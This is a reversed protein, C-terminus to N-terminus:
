KEEGKKNEEVYVERECDTQLIKQILLANKSCNCILILRGDEFVGYDCVVPRVDYRM